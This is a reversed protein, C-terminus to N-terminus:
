DNLILKIDNLDEVPGRIVFGTEQNPSKQQRKCCVPELRPRTLPFVQKGHFDSRTGLAKTQAQM